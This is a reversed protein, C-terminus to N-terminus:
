ELINLTAPGLRAPRFRREQHNKRPDLVPRNAPLFEVGPGGKGLGPGLAADLVVNKVSYMKVLLSVPLRVVKQVVKIGSKAM